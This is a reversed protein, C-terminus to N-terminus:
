ALATAKVCQRGDSAFAGLEFGEETKRMALHLPEDSIAPSVARFSFSKLKNEGLEKAAMQLLMSAM